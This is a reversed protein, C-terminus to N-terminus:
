LFESLRGQKPDYGSGAEPGANVWRWFESPKDYIVAGAGREDHVLEHCNPCLLALNDDDGAGGNAVPIIHHVLLTREGQKDADDHEEETGCRVCEDGDRKRIRDYQPETVQNEKRKREWEKYLTQGTEPDYTFRRVHQVSCDVANATRTADTARDFVAFVIAIRDRKTEEPSFSAFQNLAQEFLSILESEAAEIETKLGAFRDSSRAERYIETKLDTYESRDWNFVDEPERTGDSYVSFEGPYEAHESSLQKTKKSMYDCRKERLSSIREQLAVERDQLKRVEPSSCDVSVSTM